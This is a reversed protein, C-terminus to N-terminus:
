QNKVELCVMLHILWHRSNCSCHINADRNAIFNMPKKFDWSTNTAQGMCFGLMNGQHLFLSCIDPCDFSCDEDALIVTVRSV